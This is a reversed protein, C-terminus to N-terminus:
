SELNAYSGLALCLKALDILAPHLGVELQLDQKCEFERLQKRHPSCQGAAYGLVIGSFALIREERNIQGLPRSM